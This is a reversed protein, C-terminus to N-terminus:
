DIVWLVPLKPPVLVLTTMGITIMFFGIVSLDPVTALGGLVVILGLAILLQGLPPFRLGRYDPYILTM